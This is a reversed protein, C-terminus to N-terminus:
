AAQYFKRQHGSPVSVTACPLIEFETKVVGDEGYGGTSTTMFVACRPFYDYFVGNVEVVVTRFSLTSGYSAVNSVVAITSDLVLLAERGDYATFGFSNLARSILVIDERTISRPPKVEAISRLEEITQNEDGLDADDSQSQVSGITSFGAWSSVNDGLDPVTPAGVEATSAIAIKNIVSTGAM